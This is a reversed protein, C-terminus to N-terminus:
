GLRRYELGLGIGARFGVRVRVRIVFYCVPLLPQERILIRGTKHNVMVSYPYRFM